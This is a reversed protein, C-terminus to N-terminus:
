RDDCLARHMGIGFNMCHQSISVDKSMLYVNKMACEDGSACSSVGSPPPDYKTINNSLLQSMFQHMMLLTEETMEMPPAAPLNTNAPTDATTYPSPSEPVTGFYHHLLRVVQGFNSRSHPLHKAKFKDELQPLNMGGYEHVVGNGMLRKVLKNNGYTTVLLKYAQFLIKLDKKLQTESWNDTSRKQQKISINNNLASRNM